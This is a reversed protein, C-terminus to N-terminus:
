PKPPDALKGQAQNLLAGAAGSLAVGIWIPLGLQPILVPILAPIGTAAHKLYKLAFRKLWGM